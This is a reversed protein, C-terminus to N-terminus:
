RSELYYVPNINTYLVNNFNIFTQIFTSWPSWISDEFHEYTLDEVNFSKIIKNYKEKETDSWDIVILRIEEYDTSNSIYYGDKTLLEILKDIREKMEYIIPKLLNTDFKYYDKELPISHKIIWDNIGYCKRWYASNEDEMGKNKDYVYIDLGM